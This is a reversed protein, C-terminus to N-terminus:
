VEVLSCPAVGLLNNTVFVSRKKTGFSYIELLKIRMVYLPLGLNPKCNRSWFVSRKLEFETESIDRCSIIRVTCGVLHV